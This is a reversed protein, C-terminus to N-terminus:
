EMRQGEWNNEVVSECVEAIICTLIGSLHTHLMM